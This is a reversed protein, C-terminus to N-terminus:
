RHPGETTFEVLGSDQRVRNTNGSEWRVRFTKEGAEIVVGVLWGGDMGDDFWYRVCDGKRKPRHASIAKAAAETEEPSWGEHLAAGVDNWRPFRKQLARIVFCAAAESPVQAVIREARERAQAELAEV